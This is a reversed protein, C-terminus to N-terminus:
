EIAGDLAAESLGHVAANARALARDLRALLPAESRDSHAADPSPEAFLREVEGAVAALEDLSLNAAVGRVTHALRMAERSQGARALERIRAGADAHREDFMRILRSLLAAKGGLRHLAAERDFVRPSDPGIPSGAAPSDAERAVKTGRHADAVRAWRQLKVGLEALVMPKTIHDNMGADLCRQREGATVHATLALIPLDNMSRAARIRRTAELGDMEPMQIDMLVLRYPSHQALARDVAAQGTGVVEAAVGLEDLMALVIQQILPDDEALLVTVGSLGAAAPAVASRAILGPEAQAGVAFSVTFEFRSGQGPASHVVICGGMQGVLHQSISLGLGPSDLRASAPADLQSYPAFLAARQERTLGASTDIVAFRLGVEDQKSIVQEVSLLVSGADTSTIAYGLLSLLVQHLRHPDGILTKPVAPDILLRLGLRKETARYGILGAVDDVVRRPEFSIRVPAADAAGGVRVSAIPPLALPTRAAAVARVGRLSTPEQDCFSPAAAGLLALLADSLATPALSLWAPRGHSRGWALVVGHDRATELVLWAGAGGPMLAAAEQPLVQGDPGGVIITAAAPRPLTVTRLAPQAPVAELVHARDGALWRVILLLEAGGLVRLADLRALLADRAPM